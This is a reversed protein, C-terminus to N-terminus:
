IHILSLTLGEEWTKSNERLSSSKSADLFIKVPAGCVPTSPVTFEKVDKDEKTNCLFQMQEYSQLLSIADSAAKLAEGKLKEKEKGVDFDSADSDTTSSKATKRRAPKTNKNNTNNKTKKNGSSVNKADNSSFSTGSPSSSSQARIRSSIPFHSIKKKGNKLSKANNSACASSSSSFSSCCM